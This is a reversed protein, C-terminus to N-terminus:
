ITFEMLLSEPDIVSDNEIKNSYFEVIRKSEEVDIDTKGTAVESFLEELEKTMRDIKEQELKKNEEQM